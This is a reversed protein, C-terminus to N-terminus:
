RRDIHLLTYLSPHHAGELTCSKAKGPGRKVRTIEGEWAGMRHVQNPGEPAGQLGLGRLETVGTVGEVTGQSCRDVDIQVQEQRGWIRVNFMKQCRCRDVDMRVQEHRNGIYANFTQQCRRRDMDM